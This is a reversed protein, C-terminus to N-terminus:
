LNLKTLNSLYGIGSSLKVLSRASLDLNFSTSQTRVGISSSADGQNDNGGPLSTNRATQSTVEGVTIKAWNENINDDNDDNDSNYEDSYDATVGNSSSSSLSSSSLSPRNQQLGSGSNSNHSPLTPEYHSIGAYYTEDIYELDKALHHRVLSMRKNQRCIRCEQQQTAVIWEEEKSNDSINETRTNYQRPASSADTKSTCQCVLELKYLEPHNLVHDPPMYAVADTITDSVVKDKLISPQNHDVYGFTLPSHQKSARQGM